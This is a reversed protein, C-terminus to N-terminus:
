SEPQERGDQKARWGRGLAVQILSGNEFCRPLGTSLRNVGTITKQTFVRIECLSAFPRTNHEEAGCGFLHAYQADFVRCPFDCPTFVNRQQGAASQKKILRM